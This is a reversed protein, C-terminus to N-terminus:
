RPQPHLVDLPPLSDVIKMTEVSVTVVRAVLDLIYRPNGVERSWDNPDNVIGSPSDIKVQYRDVVWEIASRAGLMYRHAQDPIGSLSVRANYILKTKDPDLRGDIRERPFAMKDVRYFEYPDGTPTAESGVLSYPKVAEYGVHLDALARGADVFPAPDVVLPIRPLVKRLDSAYVERYDPSHLVGYVYSFVADKTFSPGYAAQFTKLATDTINDIKSYGDTTVGGGGLDLMGEAEAQEYRWRAFYNAGSSGTAGNDIMEETALAFFPPAMSGPNPLYFGYNKTAPTPFLAPLRYRRENLYQDFYAHVRSFPRYVLAREASEDFAIRKSRSLATELSGSWSILSPDQTRPRSQDAAIAARDTEYTNIMLRVNATLATSGYNYVWADRNTKLGGSFEGFIAPGGGRDCAAIFENYDDSRQNLWDGHENPSIATPLSLVTGAAAVKELKQERSLYDGIDTYHITAPGSKSINRVLLTIAVTARSGGGFVKGGEKRSQEGATRQNGRLNYVYISSFEDTLTKRM